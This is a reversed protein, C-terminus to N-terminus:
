LHKRRSFARRNQRHQSFFSDHSSHLFNKKGIDRKERIKNFIPRTDYQKGDCTVTHTKIYNIFNQVTKESQNRLDWYYEKKNQLDYLSFTEIWPDITIVHSSYHEYSKKAPQNYNVRAQRERILTDQTISKLELHPCESMASITHVYTLTNLAVYYSILIFPLTKM